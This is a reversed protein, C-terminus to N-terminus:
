ESMTFYVPQYNTLSLVTGVQISDSVANLQTALRITVPLMDGDVGIFKPVPLYSHMGNFVQSRFGNSKETIKVIPNHPSNNSLFSAVLSKSFGKTLLPAEKQAATSATSNTDTEQLYFHYLDPHQSVYKIFNRAPEYIDSKFKDPKEIALKFYNALTSKLALKQRSIGNKTKEEYSKGRNPASSGAVIDIDAISDSDSDSKM